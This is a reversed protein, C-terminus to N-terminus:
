ENFSSLELIIEISGANLTNTVDGALSSMADQVDTSISDSSKLGISVDLWNRDKDLEIGWSLNLFQVVLQGRVSLIVSGHTLILSCSLIGSALSDFLGESVEESMFNGIYMIGLINEVSDVTKDVLFGLVSNPNSTM